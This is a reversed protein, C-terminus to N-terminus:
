YWDLDPTAPFSGSALGWISRRGTTDGFEVVAVRGDVSMVIVGNYVRSKDDDIRYGVHTICFLATHPADLADLLHLALRDLERDGIAFDGYL